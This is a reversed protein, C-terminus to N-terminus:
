GLATPRKTQSRAGTAALAKAERLAADVLADVIWAALQEVDRDKLGWIDKLVIHPEIGYIISLSQHLRNLTATPLQKAMPELAHALIGVRFGRRYHEEELLGARELAWQELSVQVAARLQAEYEKFRPFTKDFLERLRERGDPNTSQYSRVPGLSAHTVASVLLTRSPFYRYATARSVKARVAVEAVSPVHGLERILAMATDMLLKFTAAKVGGAPAEPPPTPRVRGSAVRLSRTKEPPKSPKARKNFDPM